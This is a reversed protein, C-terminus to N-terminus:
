DHGLIIKYKYGKLPSKKLKEKIFFSGDIQNAHLHRHCLM